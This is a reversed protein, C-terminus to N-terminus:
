TKVKRIPKKRLDYGLESAWRRLLEEPTTHHRWGWTEFVQQGLNGGVAVLTTNDGHHTEVVHAANASCGASVEVTQHYGRDDRERPNSLSASIAQALKKGFEPDKEIDGLADNLVVVTTNYGM